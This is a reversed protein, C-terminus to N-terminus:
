YGEKQSRFFVVVLLLRSTFSFSFIIALNNREVVSELVVRVPRFLRQQHQRHLGAQGLGLNVFPAPVLLAFLVSDHLSFAHPLNFVHDILLIQLVSM